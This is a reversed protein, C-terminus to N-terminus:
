LKELTEQIRQVAKTAEGSHYAHGIHMLDACALRLEEKAALFKQQLEIPLLTGHRGPTHTELLSELSGDLLHKIRTYLKM